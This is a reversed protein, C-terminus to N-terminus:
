IHILSLPVVADLEGPPLQYRSASQEVAGNRFALKLLPQSRRCWYDNGANSSIRFRGFGFKINEGIHLLQGIALLEAFEPHVDEIAITGMSGGLSKRHKAKGYSVDLWVLDNNVINGLPLPDFYDLEWGFIRLKICRSVIRRALTNLCFHNRDLYRHGRQESNPGRTLRTPSLFQIKLSNSSCAANAQEDFWNPQVPQILNLEDPQLIRKQALDYVSAVKFNGGFADRSADRGLQQLGRILSSLTENGKGDEFEFFQLGFRYTDSEILRIRLQEPTQILLGNPVQAQNPHSKEWAAALTAYILAAHHPHIVKTTATFELNVAVSYIRFPIRAAWSTISSSNSLVGTMEGDNGYNCWKDFLKEM